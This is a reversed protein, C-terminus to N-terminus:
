ICILVTKCICPYNYVLFIFNFIHSRFKVFLPVLKSVRSLNHIGSLAVAIKSSLGASIAYFALYILPAFPFVVFVILVTSQLM